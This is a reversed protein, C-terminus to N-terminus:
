LPNKNGMGLQGWTPYHMGMCPRNPEKPPSPFEKESRRELGGLNKILFDIQIIDKGQKQRAEM